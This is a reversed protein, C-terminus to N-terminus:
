VSFDHALKSKGMDSGGKMLHSKSYYENYIDLYFIRLLLLM